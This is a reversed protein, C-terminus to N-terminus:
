LSRLCWTVVVRAVAITGTRRVIMIVTILIMIMNVPKIRILWLIPKTIM